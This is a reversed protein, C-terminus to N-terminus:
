CNNKLNSVGIFNEKLEGSIENKLNTNKIKEFNGATKNFNVTRKELNKGYNEM